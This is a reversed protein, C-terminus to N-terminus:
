PGKTGGTGTIADKGAEETLTHHAALFFKAIADDFPAGKGTLDICYVKRKEGKKGTVMMATEWRKGNYSYVGISTVKDIELKPITLGADKAVKEWNEMNAKDAPILFGAHYDSHVMWKELGHGSFQKYMLAVPGELTMLGPTVIKTPTATAPVVTPTVTAPTGTAPMPMPTPTGTAPMPTPTGGAGPPLTVPTQASVEACAALAAMLALLRITKM